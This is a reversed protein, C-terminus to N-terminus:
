NQLNQCINDSTDSSMLSFKFRDTKVKMVAIM